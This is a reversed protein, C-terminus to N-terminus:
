RCHHDTAALVVLQVGEIEGQALSVTALPANLGTLLLAAVAAAHDEAAAAVTASSSYERATSSRMVNTMSDAVAVTWRAGNESRDGATHGLLAAAVAVQFVVALRACCPSFFSAGRKSM